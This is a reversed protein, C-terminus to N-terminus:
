LTELCRELQVDSRVCSSVRTGDVIAVHSAPLIGPLAEHCVEVARGPSHHSRHIHRHMVM